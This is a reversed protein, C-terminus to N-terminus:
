SPLFEEHLRDIGRDEYLIRIMDLIEQADTGHVYHMDETNLVWVGTSSQWLESFSDVPKLKEQDYLEYLRDYVFYYDYQNIINQTASRVPINGNLLDSNTIVDAEYTEIFRVHLSGYVRYIRSVAEDTELILLSHELDALKIDTVDLVVDEVPSRPESKSDTQKWDDMGLKAQEETVNQETGDQAPFSVSGLLKPYYHRTAYHMNDRVVTNDELQILITMCGVIRDDARILVDVYAKDGDFPTFDPAPYTGDRIKEEDYEYEWNKVDTSRRWWCITQDNELVFHQGLYAPGYMYRGYEENLPRAFEGGSVTVEFSVEAGGYVGKPVSLTIPLAQHFNSSGPLAYKLHVDVGPELELTHQLAESGIYTLDHAFVKAVAPGTVPPIEAASPDTPTPIENIGCASLCAILLLALIFSRTKKM